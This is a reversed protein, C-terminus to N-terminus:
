NDTDDYHIYVNGEFLYNDPNWATMPGTSPTGNNYDSAPVLWIKAGIAYNGDALDPLDLDLDVTNSTDNFHGSGDTIHSGIFAGPNDGPWGDAYYILYYETSPKLDFAELDYDFINGDGDWSLVAYRDDNIITWPGDPNIIENELRLTHTEDEPFGEYVPCAFNDNNRAQEVYFSIDAMYKDTQAENGVEYPLDWSIGLYYPQGGVLAGAGGFVNGGPGALMWSRPTIPGEGETLILENEQWINDGNDAWIKFHLSQALEGDFISDTNEDDGSELEPETSTMDDNLTPIINVCAYAENNDVHLSVTGEGFDGPKLDAFDFFTHQQTLDTLEWSGANPSDDVKKNYYGEYDVKLDIAGAEFRNGTSTETDSFFAGTAALAVVGVTGLTLLSFLIRKM